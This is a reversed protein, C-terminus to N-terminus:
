GEGRRPVTFKFTAGDVRSELWIRGGFGAVIRSCITLGM